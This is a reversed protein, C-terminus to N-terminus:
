PEIWALEALADTLGYAPSGPALAEQRYVRKGDARVVILATPVSVAMPRDAFEQGLADRSIAEGGTMLQSDRLRAWVAEVQERTLRRTPPPFTKPVGGPGVVVRLLDDAELLYRAPRTARPQSRDGATWADAQAEPVRVVIAVSFDAPVSAPGPGAPTSSCGGPAGVAAAGALLAAALRWRGTGARWETNM